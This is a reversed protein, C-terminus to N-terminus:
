YDGDLTFKFDLWPTPCDTDSKARADNYVRTLQDVDCRASGDEDRYDGFETDNLEDLQITNIWDAICAILGAPSISVGTAEYLTALTPKKNHMASIRCRPLSGTYDPYAEAYVRLGDVAFVTM